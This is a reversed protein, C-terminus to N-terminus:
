VVYGLPVDSIINYDMSTHSHGDRVPMYWIGVEIYSMAGMKLILLSNNDPGVNTPGIYSKLTMFVIRLVGSEM